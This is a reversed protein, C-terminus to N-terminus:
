ASSILIISPLIIFDMFNFFSGGRAGLTAFDRFIFLWCTSIFYFFLAGKYFNGYNEFLLNRIRYLLCFVVLQKIFMPNFYGLSFNYREWLYYIDFLPFTGSFIIYLLKSPNIFISTFCIIFAVYFYFHNKYFRESYLFYIPLVIMSFKHITAALCVVLFFKFFERSAIYSISYLLIASALGGRIQIMETHLYLHVFYLLISLLALYSYRYIFKIKILVAFFAFFIFLFLSDQKLFAGVYNIILYGPELYKAFGPGGTTLSFLLNIKEEFSMGSFNYYLRSYNNYDAGTDPGRLAAFLFLLTGAFLCLVKRYKKFAVETFSFKVLVFYILLYM